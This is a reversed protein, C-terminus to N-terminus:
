LPRRSGDRIEDTGAPEEHGSDLDKRCRSGWFTPLDTEGQCTVALYTSAYFCGENLFFSPSFLFFFPSMFLRTAPKPYPSPSSGVSPLTLALFSFFFFFSLFSFCLSLSLSLFFFDPPQPFPVEMNFLCGVHM